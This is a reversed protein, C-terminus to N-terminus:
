RRSRMALACAESGTFFSPESVITLFFLFTLFHDIFIGISSSHFAPDPVAVTASPKWSPGDPLFSLM